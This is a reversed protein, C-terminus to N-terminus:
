GSADRPFLTVWVSGDGAAISTPNGPLSITTVAQGTDTSIKWVTRDGRNAVWVFGSGDSVIDVPTRGTPIDRDLFTRLDVRRVKNDLSTTVWAAGAALAIRSPPTATGSSSDILGARPKAQPNTASDVSSLYVIVGGGQQQWTVLWVTGGQVALDVKDSPGGLVTATVVKRRPDIRAVVGDRNNAVWVADSAVAINEIGAGVAIQDRAENSTPDIRYVKGDDRNTVWVSGGGVAIGALGKAVNIEAVKQGEGDFRTVIGSGQDAVWTGGEGVAVQMPGTGAFFKGAVQNTLPDIRVLLGRQAAVPGSPTPSGGPTSPNKNRTTLVVVLVLGVVLIAALPVLRNRGFLPRGAPEPPSAPGPPEAPAMPAAPQPPAQPAGPAAVGIGTDSAEAVTSATGTGLTLTDRAADVLEGCTAYRDDPSKAMAKAVVEDIAAPLDPTRDTVKPPPQSMHAWLVAMDSDRPFPVEGTLCEYLVCGLSYVDTRADLPRGEIQEPAAYDLTGIFQGTGTLGTGSSTRKTVGFDSLYVHEPSDARPGPALLINAPKVDRHVLGEAHAADLAAAAQTCIALAREPPLAGQDHLLTKLDTGRVYRMAIYLVGDIEGAEYIPIINPHDLAAAMQSERVFRERFRDDVALEPTLLKLAAKRKLGTHEALYVVSMGGRGLVSEILYGAIETGIRPDSSM